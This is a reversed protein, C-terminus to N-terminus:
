FKEDNTKKDSNYEILTAFAKKLREVLSNDNKFDFPESYDNYNPGGISLENKSKNYHEYGKDCATYTLGSGKVYFDSSYEPSSGTVRNLYITINCGYVGLLNRYVFEGNSYSVFQRPAVLREKMKGAIWDMTEQKTPKAAKNETTPKTTKASAKKQANASMCAVTALLIVTLKFQKNM